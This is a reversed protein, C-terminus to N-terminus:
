TYVCLVIFSIRDTVCRKKNRHGRGYSNLKEEHAKEGDEEGAHSGGCKEIKLPVLMVKKM